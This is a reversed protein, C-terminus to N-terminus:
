SREASAPARHDHYKWTGPSQRLHLGVDDGTRHAGPTSSRTSRRANPSRRLRALPGRTWTRSCSPIERASRWRDPEFGDETMHVVVSGDDLPHAFSADMRVLFLAVSLCAFLSFFACARRLMPAPIEPGWSCLIRYAPKHCLRLPRLTRGRAFRRITLERPPFWATRTSSSSRPAGTDFEKYGQPAEDLSIVPRQRGQRDPGQRAPHEDDPRPQVEHGPVPGHLLRPEQGLRPRIRIKLTGEQADQDAAGPDGTVYLGPIGIGGGARTITQVQNLVM